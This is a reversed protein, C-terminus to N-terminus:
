TEGPQEQVPAQQTVKSLAGAIAEGMAAAEREKQTDALEKRRKEGEAVRKKHKAMDKDYSGDLMYNM